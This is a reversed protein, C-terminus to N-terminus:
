ERWRREPFRRDFVWGDKTVMIHDACDICVKFRRDTDEKGCAQCTGWDERTAYIKIVEKNEM